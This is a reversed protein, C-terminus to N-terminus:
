LIFALRLHDRRLYAVFFNPSLLAFALTLLLTAMFINWMGKQAYQTCIKVVTKSDEIDAERKDLNMNKKIFEVARYAGVTYSGAMGIVSFLM